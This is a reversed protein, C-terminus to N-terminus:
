RIPLDACEPPREGWKEPWVGNQRALRIREALQSEETPTNEGLEDLADRWKEDRIWRFFDPLNPCFAKRRHADERKSVEYAVAKRIDEIAVGGEIAKKFQEAGKKRTQGALLPSSRYLAFIENFAIKIEEKEKRNGEQKDGSEPTAELPDSKDGRDDGNTAELQQLPSNTAELKRGLYVRFDFVYYTISGKGKGRRVTRTQLLGADELSSIARQVTKVSVECQEALREQRPFCQGTHDNHCDALALLVIKQTPTLTRQDWAWNSARLSM